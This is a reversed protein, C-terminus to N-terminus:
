SKTGSGQPGATQSAAVDAITGLRNLRPASWTKRAPAPTKTTQSMFREPRDAIQNTHKNAPYRLSAAFFLKLNNCQPVQTTGIVKNVHCFAEHEPILKGTRTPRLM